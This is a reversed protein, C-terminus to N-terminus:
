AGPPCRREGKEVDIPVVGFSAASAAKAKVPDFDVFWAKFITRAMVELPENMRYNADIKEDIVALIHAIDRQTGIPPLTLLM